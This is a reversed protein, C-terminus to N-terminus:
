PTSTGTPAPACTVTFVLPEQGAVEGLTCTFVATGLKLTFPDALYPTNVVFQAFGAACNAKTFTHQEVYGGGHGLQTCVNLPSTYYGNGPGLVPGGRTIASAISPIFAVEAALLVAAAGLGVRELTLKM